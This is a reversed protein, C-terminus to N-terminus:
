RGAGLHEVGELEAVGRGQPRLIKYVERVNSRIEGSDKVTTIGEDLLVVANTDPPYAPLVDHAAQRFWDPAGAFASSACASFLVLVALSRRSKM